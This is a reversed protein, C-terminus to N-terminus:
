RPGRRVPRFARLWRARGRGVAPFGETPVRGSRRGGSSWGARCGSSCRVGSAPRRHHSPPTAQDARGPVPPPGPSGTPRAGGDHRSVAAYATTRGQEVAAPVYRGFGVRGLGGGWSGLWSRLSPGATWLGRVCRARERLVRCRAWGSRGVLGSLCARYASGAALVPVASSLLGRYPGTNSLRDDRVDGRAARDTMGTVTRSRWLGAEGLPKGAGPRVRAPRSRPRDAGPRAADEAEGEIVAAGRRGREARPPWSCTRCRCLARRLELGSRVPGATDGSAPGATDGSPMLHARPPRLGCRGAWEPHPHLLVPPAHAAGGDPQLTEAPARTRSRPRCAEEGRARPSRPQPSQANRVRKPSPGSSPEAKPTRTPSPHDHPRRETPSKRPYGSPHRKRSLATPTRAHLERRPM